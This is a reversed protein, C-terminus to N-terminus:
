TGKPSIPQGGACREWVGHLDAYTGLRAEPQSPDSLLFHCPSLLQHPQPPTISRTQLHIPSRSVLCLTCLHLIRELNVQLSIKSRDQYLKALSPARQVLTGLALLLLPDERRLNSEGMITDKFHSFFLLAFGTGVYQRVSVFENRTCKCTTQAATLPVLLYM